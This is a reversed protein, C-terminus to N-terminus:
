MTVNGKTWTFMDYLEIALGTSSSGSNGHQTSTLSSTLYSGNAAVTVYLIVSVTLPQEVISYPFSHLMTNISTYCPACTTPLCHVRPIDLYFATPYYSLLAVDQSSRHHTGARQKQTLMVCRSFHVQEKAGVLEKARFLLQPVPCRCVTRREMLGCAQSTTTSPTSQPSYSPLIHPIIRLIRSRVVHSREILFCSPRVTSLITQHSSCTPPYIQASTAGCRMFPHSCLLETSFTTVHYRPPVFKNGGGVLTSSGPVWTM